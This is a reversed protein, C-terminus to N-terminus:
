NEQSDKVLSSLGQLQCTTLGNSLKVCLKISITEGIGKFHYFKLNGKWIDYHGVAGKQGGYTKTMSFIKSWGM